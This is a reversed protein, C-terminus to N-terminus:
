YGSGALTACLADPDIAGPLFVNKTVPNLLVETSECFLHPPRSAATNYASTLASPNGYPSSPNFISYPGDADGYDGRPNCVSDAARARSSAVGLFTGDDAVLALSPCRVAAAADAEAGGGSGHADSNQPRPPPPEVNGSGAEEAMERPTDLSPDFAPSGASSTTSSRRDSEEEPRRRSQASCAAIGLALLLVAVRFM